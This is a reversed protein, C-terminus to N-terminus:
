ARPPPADPRDARAIASPAASSIPELSQLTVHSSSLTPILGATVALTLLAADAPGSASRMLCERGEDRTTHHM